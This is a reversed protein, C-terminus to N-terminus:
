RPLSQIRNLKVRSLHQGKMILNAIFLEDVFYCAIYEEIAEGLLAPHLLQDCIFILLCFYFFGV